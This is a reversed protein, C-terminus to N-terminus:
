PKETRIWCMPALKEFYDPVGDKLIVSLPVWPKLKLCCGCASCIKLEQEDPLTLKLRHKLEMARKVAVAAKGALAEFLSEDQNLPCIRCIRARAEAHDQSVPPQGGLWWDALTRSGQKLQRPTMEKQTWLWPM